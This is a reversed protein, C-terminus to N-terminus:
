SFASSNGLQCVPNPLHVQVSGIVKYKATLEKPEEPKMAASHTNIEFPQEGIVHNLLVM